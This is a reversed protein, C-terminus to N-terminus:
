ASRSKQRGIGEFRSQNLAGAVLPENREAHRCRIGNRVSLVM